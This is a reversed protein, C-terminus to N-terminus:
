SKAEAPANGNSSPSCGKDAPTASKLAANGLIIEQIKAKIQVAGGPYWPGNVVTMIAAALELAEVDQIGKTQLYSRQEISATQEAKVSVGDLCHSFMNMAEVANFLNTGIPWSDPAIQKFSIGCDPAFTQPLKWGLFRNVLQDIDVTPAANRVDSAQETPSPAALYPDLIEHILVMCDPLPVDEFELERIACAANWLQHESPVTTSLDGTAVQSNLFPLLAEALMGAGLSHNGDVRRIEQALEDVNITM